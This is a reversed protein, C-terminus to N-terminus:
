VYLSKRMKNSQPHPTHLSEKNKLHRSNVKNNNNNNHNNNNNNHMDYSRILQALVFLYLMFVFIAYFQVLLRYISFVIM